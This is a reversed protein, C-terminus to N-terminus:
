MAIYHKGDYEWYDYIDPIFDGFRGANKMLIGAERKTAEISQSHDIEKIACHQYDDFMRREAKYVHGFGGHGIKGQIRYEFSGTLILITNCHPCQKHKPAVPKMCHYCRLESM